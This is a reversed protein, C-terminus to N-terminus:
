PNVVFDTVIVNFIIQKFGLLPTYVITFGKYIGAPYDSPNDTAYVIFPVANVVTQNAYTGANLAAALDPGDLETQTVNGLVMGFTIGSNMTSAAVGQLVSIGQQDYFLPNVPNNSGNIIANSIAQDVNLQVWDVSYWYKLFDQGDMTTGWLIIAKNIGGEAGTGVYNVNAAKFAALTPGNGPLPYPTVGTIYAFAFPTVKNTNSPKQNLAVYMASALSFEVLSAGPAEVMGVVSKMLNTFSTYNSNTMTTFFYVKATTSEYNAVFTLYSSQSSFVRPVLWIYVIGPNSTIWTNLATIAAAPELPGLELVYPAVGIGQAFFTTVMQLLESVGAQTYTPSGTAPSVTGIPVAFTFTTASAVTALFTGNYGSQFAGTINVNYTDSTAGLNPQVNSASAITMTLGPAVFFNLTTGGTGAAAQWNGDIDAFSGSGAAGAVTVAAGPALGASAALTLSVLGTTANYTGGTATTQNVTATALGGTQTISSVSIPATLLSTLASASTLLTLSGPLNSTGGVSVFAGTQQLTLPAPALQQSVNVQVISNAM